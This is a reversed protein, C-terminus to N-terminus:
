SQEDLKSHKIVNKVVGIRVRAMEDISSGALRDLILKALTQQPGSPGDVEVSCDKMQSKHINLLKPFEM